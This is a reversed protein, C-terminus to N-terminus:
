HTTPPTGTASRRASLIKLGSVFGTATCYPVALVAGSEAPPLGGILTLRGASSARKQRSARESDRHAETLGASDFQHDSTGPWPRPGEVPLDSVAM